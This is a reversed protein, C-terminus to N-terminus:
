KSITQKLSGDCPTSNPHIELKLCLYFLSGLISHWPGSIVNMNWNPKILSATVTGCAESLRFVMLSKAHSKILEFTLLVKYIVIYTSSWSEFFLLFIINVPWQLPVIFKCIIIRLLFIHQTIVCCSTWIGAIGNKANNTILIIESVYPRPDSANM